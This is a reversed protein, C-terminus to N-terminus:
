RWLIMRKTPYLRWCSVKTHDDLYHHFIEFDAPHELQEKFLVAWSSLVTLAIVLCLSLSIVSIRCHCFSQYSSCHESILKSYRHHVFSHVRIPAYSCGIRYFWFPVLYKLVWHGIQFLVSSFELVKWASPRDCCDTHYCNLFLYSYMFLFNLILFYVIM